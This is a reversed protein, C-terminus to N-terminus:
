RRGQRSRPGEVLDHQCAISYVKVPSAQLFTPSILFARLTLVVAEFEYKIAAALVQNLEDLSVIIPDPVPYVFRLLPELVARTESVSIIPIKESEDDKTSPGQPLSFMDRFFPSAITLINRHVRFQAPSELDSSVLVVDADPSDFDYSAILAACSM